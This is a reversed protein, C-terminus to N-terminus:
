KNYGEHKNYNTRHGFRYYLMPLQIVELVAGKKLMRSFLVSDEEAHENGSHAYGGAEKALKVDYLSSGHAQEINWPEYNGPVVKWGQYSIIDAESQLCTALTWPALWNDAGLFMVKDTTTRNLADNFNHIVGLNWPRHIFEVEPYLGELHKCDGVGDDFFRVVDFPQSQYLVSEIAQAALHGYKYSMICCTTTM